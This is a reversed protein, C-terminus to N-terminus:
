SPFGPAHLGADCNPMTAAGLASPAGRLSSARSLGQTDGPSGESEEAGFELRGGRSAAIPPGSVGAGLADIEGAGDCGPVMPLPFTHGPVGRRVWTDLHNIGSARVRIRVQGAGPTPVEREELLLRDYDGHERIVVCRM